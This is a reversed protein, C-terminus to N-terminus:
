RKKNNPENSFYNMNLILRRKTDTQTVVKHKTLCDFVVLRNEVSDVKHQKVDDILTYANCTTFYFIATKAHPFEYDVHWDCEYPRPEKLVMNVRLQLIAAMNMKDLLPAFAEFYNSSIKNGSYLFHAFYYGRGETMYEQWFWTFKPSEILSKLILLNKKDLFNDIIKM